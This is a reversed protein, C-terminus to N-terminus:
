SSHRSRLSVVRIEKLRRSADPFYPDVVARQVLSNMSAPSTPDTRCQDEDISKLLVLQDANLCNALWASISDSTCEWSEPLSCDMQLAITPSYYAAPAICAISRRPSPNALFDNLGQRSCIPANLRLLQSALKATVDMLDVCLWHAFTSPLQHIADLERVAEVVQGGGAVVLNRAPPEHDLWEEFRLSLDGLSFLSGGLKIVRLPLPSSGM